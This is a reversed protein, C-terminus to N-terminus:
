SDSRACEAIFYKYMYMEQATIIDSPEDEKGEIKWSRTTLVRCRLVIIIGIM